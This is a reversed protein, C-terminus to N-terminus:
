NELFIEVRRNGAEGSAMLPLLRDVFDGGLSHAVRTLAAILHQQTVYDVLPLNSVIQDVAEEACNDALLRLAIARVQPDDDRALEYWRPLARQDVEMKALRDLFVNRDSGVSTEIIRWYIGGLPASSPASLVLSRTADRVAEDESTLLSALHRETEPIKLAFLVEAAARMSHESKARSEALFQNITATSRMTGLVRFAAERIARDPRFAMWVVDKPKLNKADFVVQLLADREDTSEYDNKALKVLSTQLDSHFLPMAM